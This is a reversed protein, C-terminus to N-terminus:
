SYLKVEQYSSNTKENINKKILAREDNITYVKRALDIFEDDFKKLKELYRLRDEIDWLKANVEFLKELYSKKYINFKKAIEILDTLEKDVFINNIKRSKLQLITIKDLLEGNSVPIMLFNM